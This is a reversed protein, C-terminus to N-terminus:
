PYHSSFFVPMCNQSEHHKSGVPYSLSPVLLGPPPPFLCPEVSSPHTSFPDSLSASSSPFAAVAWGQM